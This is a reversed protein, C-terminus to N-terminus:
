ERGVGDVLPRSVKSVGPIKRLNRKVTFLAETNFVKLTLEVYLKAGEVRYELFSIELKHNEVLSIVDKLFVPNDHAELSIRSTSSEGKKTDEWVLSVARLPDDKFLSATPCDTRHVAIGRGHTIFGVVHDGPIPHCCPSFRIMTSPMRRIVLSKRGERRISDIEDIAQKQTVTRRTIFTIIESSFRSKEAVAIFLEDESQFNFERLVEPLYTELNERLHLKGYERFLLQKGISLRDKREVKRLWRKIESRARPTRVDNLWEVNPKREFSHLVEVLDGDYLEQDPKEIHGNVKAGICHLGIDSHIAFAFDMVTAGKPLIIKENKPTRVSIDRQKIDIKFFEFFETSDSLEKQWSVLNRLWKVANSEGIPSDKYRWHAAVGEEAQYNMEVTRIQIEVINGDFGAVTTHISQYGNSKPSAIYDKLKYPVPQWLSHVVGLLRYCDDVSNCILRIALLDFIENYPINRNKNKKYISYYTKSRGFVEAEISQKQIKDELISRLKHILVQRRSESESIKEVVEHYEAPYLHKFALDELESKVNGMGLRLALPVYIDLTERAIREKKEQAMYRLTRLNHLRDAFKIMIVRVDEAANLLVKRYTEVKRFHKDEEHVSTLKTVGDVIRSVSAGFCTEIDGTNVSTDEVVDHLLAAIVGTTGMGQEACILSVEMPHIFYPEGSKRLQGEHADWSYTFAHSVRDFDLDPSLSKLRDLYQTKAIRANSFDLNM